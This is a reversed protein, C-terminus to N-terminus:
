LGGAQQHGAQYRKTPFDYRLPVQEAALISYRASKTPVSASFYFKDWFERGLRGIGYSSMRYHYFIADGPELKTFVVQNDYIEGPVKNGNAKIVEAKVITITEYVSNYPLTLEKWSEIGSNNRLHVATLVEKGSAGDPYLVM